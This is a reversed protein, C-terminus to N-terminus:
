KINLNDPLFFEKKSGSGKVMYGKKLRAENIKSKILEFLLEEKSLSRYDEWNKPLTNSQCPHVVHTHSKKPTLQHADRYLRMYSRATEASIGYIHAAEYRTLEGYYIKRGIELREESSFKM